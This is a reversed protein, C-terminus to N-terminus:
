YKKYFDDVSILNMLEERHSDFYPYTLCEELSAKSYLEQRGRRIIGIGFDTDVVCIDLNPETCRLRAISKWVDGNWLETARPVIQMSYEPPNCDHLIIFGDDVIHALANQIDKDVQEAHHLGDIFILGYRLERGEILQFFEDSSVPYNIESIMAGRTESWAHPDVGDKHPAKIKNICVGEHVGIELYNVIQYNDILYNILDWRRLANPDCYKEITYKQSM